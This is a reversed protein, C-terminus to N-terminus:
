GNDIKLQKEDVLTFKERLERKLIKGAVNRPLEDMIIVQYIKQYRAELNQNAWCKIEVPTAAIGEKLVVAAM